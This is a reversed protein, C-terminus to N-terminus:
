RSPHVTVTGVGGEDIPMLYKKFGTNTNQFVLATSTAYMVDEEGILYLNGNKSMDNGFIHHLAMTERGLDAVSQPGRLKALEYTTDVIPDEEVAEAAATSTAAADRIPAVREADGSKKEESAATDAAPSADATPPVSSNVNNDTIESDTSNEVPPVTEASDAM